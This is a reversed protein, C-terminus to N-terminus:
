MHYRRTETYAFITKDDNWIGNSEHFDILSNKFCYETKANKCISALDEDKDEENISDKPNEKFIIM